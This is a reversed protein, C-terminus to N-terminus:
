APQRLWSRVADAHTAEGVGAEAYIALAQEALSRAARRDDRAGGAWYVRALLFATAAREDDPMDDRQRRSWAAEALQRAEEVEGREFLLAALDSRSTAVLPHDPALVQERMALARRHEAVAEEHRGQMGLMVALNFRCGSIELPDPVPNRELVALVHRFEAEADVHRGQNSLLVALNTHSSLVEPHEPGLSRERLEIARRLESAAEAHKGQLGLLIALNNRTGAVNPHEPGLSREFVALARRYAAEAEGYKQQVGLANALSVLSTAVNPHDPGLAKEWLVLARRHEAEAEEHKGQVDFLTALSQRTSVVDPHEPGLTSELLAVAHRLEAEAEDWKGQERRIVAVDNRVGAERQPDAEALTQAFDAYRLAEDFRRHRHGVVHLLRSAAVQVAEWQRWRVALRLGERLVTEAEAYKGLDDLVTGHIIALETQVPGYSLEALSARAADVHQRADAYRGAKRAARAHAIAQEITKVADADKPLPPEVGAQLSEIDACRPLPRLSATLEHATRVVEADADALMATVAQLDLRARHLCAMRLDLVATSQEGRVTTAECAEQHMQTWASAYADLVAATREWVGPAYAVSTALLADHVQARRAEDWTDALHSLSADATCQQSRTGVWSQWSLAGLGVVTLGGTAMLWRNRRKAPDYTLADLLTNMSPWRDGPDAALGRRIAEAVRRPTSGGPWPPPGARKMALRRERPFPPEGCLAQWLAVCFAYQDAAPTLSEGRHQEPAMYQPTGLVTGSVTLGEAGLESPTSGHEDSAHAVDDDIPASATASGGIKALGFDTVKVTGDAVLVNSPKFDRHLLGAAHAAALGRGAAEFCAVVESWRPDESRLWASLTQGAVFEMVLVLRDGLEEVDYVAVVNPHSLMAMARAEAVLRRGGDDRLRAGHMVKLAVERQLKPDYARLVRGM